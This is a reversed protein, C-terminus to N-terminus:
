LANEHMDSETNSATNEENGNTNGNISGDTYEANTDGTDLADLMKVVSLNRLYNKHLQKVTDPVNNSKLSEHIFKLRRDDSNCTIRVVHYEQQERTYMSDHNIVRDCTMGMNMLKLMACLVPLKVTDIPIHDGLLDLAAAISTPIYAAFEIVGDKNMCDIFDIRNVKGIQQRSKDMMCMMDIVIQMEYIYSLTSYCNAFSKTTSLKHTMVDDRQEHYLAHLVSDYLDTDNFRIRIQTTEHLSNEVKVATCDFGHLIFYSAVNYNVAVSVHWEKNTSYSTRSTNFEVTYISCAVLDRELKAWQLLILNNALTNSM